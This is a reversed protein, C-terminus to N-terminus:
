ALSGWNADPIARLCLDWLTGRWGRPLKHYEAMMKQYVAERVQAPYADFRLYAFELIEYEENTM